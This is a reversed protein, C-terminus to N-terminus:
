LGEVSDGSWGGGPTDHSVLDLAALADALVQKVLDERREFRREDRLRKLFRVELTRGYLDGCFGPIHTEVAVRVAGPGADPAGQLPTAPGACGLFTPRSGVNTVSAARFEGAVAVTAYVGRLPLLRGPPVDLNATPVGLTRGRGDGHVVRGSVSYPRGLMERAAAMDGRSVAQRVATSSVPVGSVIVPEVIIVRFGLDRGLRGLDEATATGGSGFTFNYGVLVVRADLNEKLVGRAFEYPSIGAFEPTFPAVVCQRVGMRNMISVKEELTTLMPPGGPGNGVVQLPHPEFTLCTPLLDTGQAESVLRRIIAQHGAHVGDFFGVAVARPGPGSAAEDLNFVVHPIGQLGDDHSNTLTDDSM